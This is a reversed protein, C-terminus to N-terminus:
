WDKVHLAVLMASLNSMRQFMADHMVHDFTSAHDWKGTMDQNHTAM